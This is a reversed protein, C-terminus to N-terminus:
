DRSHTRPNITSTVEKRLGTQEITRAIEIKDRHKEKRIRDAKLDKIRQLDYDRKEKMIKKDRAERTAKM